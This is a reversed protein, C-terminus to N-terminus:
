RPRIPPLQTTTQHNSHTLQPNIKGKVLKNLVGAHFRRLHGVVNRKHKWYFHKALCSTQQGVTYSNLVSRPVTWCKDLLHKSFAGQEYNEGAWRGATTWKMVANRRFACTWESSVGDWLDCWQAVIAKGASGRSVWVGANMERAVWFGSGIGCYFGAKRGLVDVSKDADLWCADSDLHVVVQFEDHLHRAYFVKQWWPPVAADFPKAYLRYEYGQSRAWQRNIFTLARMYPVQEAKRDEYQFVVVHSGGSPKWHHARSLAVRERVKAAHKGRKKNCSHPRTKLHRLLLWNAAGVYGCDPCKNPADFEVM